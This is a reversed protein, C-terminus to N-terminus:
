LSRLQNDRVPRHCFLQSLCGNIDYGIAAGDFLPAHPQPQFNCVTYYNCFSKGFPFSDDCVANYVQPRTRLYLYGLGGLRLLPLCRSDLIYSLMLMIESTNMLLGTVEMTIEIKIVNIPTIEIVVRGILWYGLM